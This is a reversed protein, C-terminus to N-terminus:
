HILAVGGIGDLEDLDHVIDYSIKAIIKNEHEIGSHICLMDEFSDRVSHRYDPTKRDIILDNGECRM